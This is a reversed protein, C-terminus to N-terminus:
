ICSTCVTHNKDSWACGGACAQDQTCGCRFCTGPYASAVYKQMEKFSRFEIGPIGDHTMITVWPHDRSDKCKKITIGYEHNRYEQRHGGNGLRSFSVAVATCQEPLEVNM